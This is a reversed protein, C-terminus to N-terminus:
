PMSINIQFHSVVLLLLLLLSYRGVLSPNKGGLPFNQPFLLDSLCRVVRAPTSPVITDYVVWWRCFPGLYPLRLQKRSPRGYQSASTDCRGHSVESPPHHLFVFLKRTWPKDAKTESTTGILDRRHRQHGRHITLFRARTRTEQLHTLSPQTIWCRWSPMMM